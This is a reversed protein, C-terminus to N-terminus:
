SATNLKEKLPFQPPMPQDRLLLLVTETGEVGDLPWGCAGRDPNFEPLELALRRRDVKSEMKWAGRSWPYVPQVTDGSLWILYPHAPRNLAVSLRVLDGKVLPLVGPADISLGQRESNSQNWIVVDLEARIHGESPPTENGAVIQGEIRVALTELEGPKELRKSDLFVSIAADQWVRQLTVWCLGQEKDPHYHADFLSFISIGTSDDLAFMRQIWTPRRKRRIAEALSRAISCDSEKLVFDQATRKKHAVWRLFFVALAKVAGTWSFTDDGTGGYENSDVM